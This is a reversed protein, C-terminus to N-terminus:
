NWAQRAGTMKRKRLATACNSMLHALLAKVAANTNGARCAALIRAHDREDSKKLALFARRDPITAAISVYLSDVISCLRPRRAPEYLARHFAIHHKGWLRSDNAGRMAAHELDAKHLDAASMNKMALRLAMPELVRRIDFREKVEDSSFSAVAAGRNTVYVIVGDSELQRLAERVPIRSVGFRAALDAQHLSTGAALKGSQIEDRLQDAILAPTGKSIILMTKWELGRM